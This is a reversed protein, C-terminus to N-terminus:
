ILVCWSKVRKDKLSGLMTADVRDALKQVLREPICSLDIPMKIIKTTTTTTQYICLHTHTHTFQHRFSRNTPPYHQCAHVHM